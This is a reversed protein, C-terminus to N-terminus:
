SDLISVASSWDHSPHNSINKSQMRINLLAVMQPLARNQQRGQMKGVAFFRNLLFMLAEASTIRQQQSIM